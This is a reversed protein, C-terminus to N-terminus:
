ATEEPLHLNRVLVLHRCIAHASHQRMGVMVTFTRGDAHVAEMKLDTLPLSAPPSKVQLKAALGPLIIGVPKGLVSMETFGFLNSAATGYTCVCYDADLTMAAYHVHGARSDSHREKTSTESKTPM